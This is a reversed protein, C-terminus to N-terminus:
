KRVNHSPGGDVGASFLWPRYPLEQRDEPTLLFSTGLAEKCTGLSGQSGSGPLTSFEIHVTREQTHVYTVFTVPQVFHCNSSNCCISLYLNHKHPREFFFFFSNEDTIAESVLSVIEPHQITLNKLPYKEKFFFSLTKM